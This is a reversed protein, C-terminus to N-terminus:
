KFNFIIHERLVALIMESKVVFKEAFMDRNPSPFFVNASRWKKVGLFQMRSAGRFCIETYNQINKYM